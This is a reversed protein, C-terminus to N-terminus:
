KSFRRGSWTSVKKRKAITSYKKTRKTESKPMEAKISKNIAKRIREKNSNKEVPVPSCRCRPHRPFMGRAKSIPIVMKELPACMPCVRNDGATTWEASVMIEKEGMLEMMDLAGEAHARVIETEAILRARTIGIKSIRNNINKALQETSAGTVLGNSLVRRIDNSMAQTVGKLDKFTRSQLFKLRAEDAKNIRFFEIERLNKMDDTLFLDSNKRVGRYSRKSGKEYGEKVFRDIIVKNKGIVKEEVANGLWKEFKEVKQQENEYEWVRSSIIQDEEFKDTEIVEEVFDEIQFNLIREKEKLGFVDLSVILRRVETQMERFSSSLKNGFTKRLMATRTPDIKLPNM